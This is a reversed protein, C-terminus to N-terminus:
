KKESDNNDGKKRKIADVLFDVGQMLALGIVFAIVCCVVKVFAM